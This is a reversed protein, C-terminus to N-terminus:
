RASAANTECSINDFFSKTKDYYEEVEDSVSESDEIIEAEEGSSENFDHGSGM